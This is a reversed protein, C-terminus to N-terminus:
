PRTVSRDDQLSGAGQLEVWDAGQRTRGKLDLTAETSSELLEAPAVRVVAKGHFSWDVELGNEEQSHVSAKWEFVAAEQGAQVTVGSLVATGDKLDGTGSGSFARFLAERLTVPKGVAIPRDGLATLLADDRGLDGHLAQLLQAEGAPAPLGKEAAVTLKGETADLWYTHGELSGDVRAPKDWPKEELHYRDYHASVRSPAGGVLGLVEMTRAFAESRGSENGGLKVGDRWLEVGMRLSSKRVIRIRDGVRAPLARLAVKRPDTSATVASPTPPPGVGRTPEVRRECGGSCVGALLFVGALLPLTGHAARRPVAAFAVRGQQAAGSGDRLNGRM